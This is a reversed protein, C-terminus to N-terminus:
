IKIDIDIDRFKIESISNKIKNRKNYLFGAWERVKAQQIYCETQAVCYM